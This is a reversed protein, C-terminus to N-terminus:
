VKEKLIRKLVGDVKERLKSENLYGVIREIEKGNNFLVLCPISFVSNQTAIEPYQETDLKGFRLKKNYSDSIKEFIPSLLKCPGCWDAFHDIIIPLEAKILEVYNEDTVEIVAM